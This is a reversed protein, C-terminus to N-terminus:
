AEGRLIPALKSVWEQWQKETMPSRRQYLEVYAKQFEEYPSM